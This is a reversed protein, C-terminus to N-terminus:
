PTSNRPSDFLILQKVTAVEWYGKGTAISAEVRSATTPSYQFRICVDDGAQSCGIADITIKDSKPDIEKTGPLVSVQASEPVTTNRAGLSTTNFTVRLADHPGVVKLPTDTQPTTPVVTTARDTKNLDDLRQQTAASTLESQTYATGLESLTSLLSQPPTGFISLVNPFAADNNEGHFSLRDNLFCVVTAKPAIHNQFWKTSTDSKTLAIGITAAQPDNPDVSQELRKLFPAPNSYPPNLYISKVHPGRWSQTLGDDSKTYRQAAVPTPEAGSAPDLSFKGGTLLKPPITDLLRDILWRPTGYEDTGAKSTSECSALQDPFNGSTFAELSSDPM